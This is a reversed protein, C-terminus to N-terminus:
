VVSKRDRAPELNWSSPTGNMRICESEREISDIWDIEEDIEILVLVANARTVSLPEMALAETKITQGM